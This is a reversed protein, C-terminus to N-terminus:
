SRRRYEGPSCGIWRKFVRSFVFADAYGVSSAIVELKDNTTELLQQARQMRIYTLQQLPSRGLERLCLRRFHEKSCHFRASLSTLDHKAAMDRSIESWYSTLRENVQWPKACRRALGHIIAIWHHIQKADRDSDWEARLGEIPRAFEEAAVRGRVPSQAGVLPSVHPPEDYRLWAFTWCKGPVSHFANLVRPPALYVDGPTVKQWRGDLLIRGEGGTCALIFSGSPALRVRSYPHKSDDIGLRALRYAGLERCGDVSLMWRRFGPGNFTTEALNLHIEAM